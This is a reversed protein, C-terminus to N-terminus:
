LATEPVLVSLVDLKFRQWFTTRPEEKLPPASGEEAKWELENRADLRVRWAGKRMLTEVLGLVDRAFPESEVVIGIETNLAASRPDLNMSGIFVVRRDIIAAKTHVRLVPMGRMEAVVMRESPRPDIEYLEAGAEILAKRYRRYGAHVLPEDTSALSNTLIRVRVGRAVTIRLRTIGTDTAVAYPSIFVVEKQARRAKTNFTRRVESRADWIDGEVVAEDRLKFPSDAVAHVKGFQLQLRGAEIEPGLRGYGLLDVPIRPQAPLRAGSTSSEFVERREASTGRSPVLAQIPWVRESNWYLDFLASLEGVVRGAVLADLDFFASQESQWYYEDAVNRGGVIALANDGVLLKNHMRMQLRGFDFLSAAFRQMTSGERVAFPNFVRVEVGDYAALGDLLGQEGGTYLDDVLLRVRVGRHAANRLESLFGLGTNDSAIHYYQVDLSREAARVLAIRADLAITGSHILRFGNESSQHLSAEVVQGLRTDSNAALAKSGVVEPREPLGVCAALTAALLLMSCRMALCSAM